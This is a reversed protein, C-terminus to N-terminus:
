YHETADSVRNVPGITWNRFGIISQQRPRMPHVGGSYGWFLAWPGWFGSHVIHLLRTTSPSWVWTVCIWAIYRFDTRDGLRNGLEVKINVTRLGLIDEWRCRGLFKISLKNMISIREGRPFFELSEYASFIDQVWSRKIGRRHGITSANLTVIYDLKM